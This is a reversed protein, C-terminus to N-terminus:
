YHVDVVRRRLSARCGKRGVAILNNSAIGHISRLSPDHRKGDAGVCWGGFAPITGYDGVAFADGSADMWVDELKNTVAGSAQIWRTASSNSLPETNGSPSCAGMSASCPNSNRSAATSWRPGCVARGLSLHLRETGGRVRRQGTRDGCIRSSCRCESTSPRGRSDMGRIAAGNGGIAFVDSSSTGWVAFLAFTATTAMESWSVGDYHLLKTGLGTVYVDGPEAAGCRTEVSQDGIPVTM